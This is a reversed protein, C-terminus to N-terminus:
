KILRAIANNVTIWPKQSLDNLIETLEEPTIKFYM